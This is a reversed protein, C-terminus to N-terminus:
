YACQSKKICKIQKEEKYVTTQIQSVAKTKNEITLLEGMEKQCQMLPFYHLTDVTCKQKKSNMYKTMNGTYVCQM